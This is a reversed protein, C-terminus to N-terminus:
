IDGNAYTTPIFRLPEGTSGSTEKWDYNKEPTHNYIFECPPHSLFTNKNIIPLTDLNHVTAQNKVGSENWLKKYLPIHVYAHKVLRKLRYNQWLKIVWTPKLHVEKWIFFEINRKLNELTTSRM